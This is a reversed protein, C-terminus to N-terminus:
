WWWTLKSEEVQSDMDPIDFSLRHQDSAVKRYYYHHIGNIRGWASPWELEQQCKTNTMMNEQLVKIEIWVMGRKEWRLDQPPICSSKMEVEKQANYIHTHM